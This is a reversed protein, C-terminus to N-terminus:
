NNHLTFPIFLVWHVFCIECCVYLYQETYNCYLIENIRTTYLLTVFLPIQIMHIPNSDVLEIHSRPYSSTDLDSDSNM